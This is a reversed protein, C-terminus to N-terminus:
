KAFSSTGANETLSATVRRTQHRSEVAHFSDRDLRVSGWSRRCSMLLEGLVVSDDCLPERGVAM